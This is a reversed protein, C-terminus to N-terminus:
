FELPAGQTLSAPLASVEQWFRAQVREKFARLEAKLAPLERSRNVHIRSILAASFGERWRRRVHGDDKRHPVSGHHYFFAKRCSCSLRPTSRHHACSGNADCLRRCDAAPPVMQCYAAADCGSRQFLLLGPMARQLESSQSCALRVVDMTGGAELVAAKREMYWEPTHCSMLNTHLMCGRRAADETAFLRATVLARVAKKLVAPTCSMWSSPGALMAKHLRSISTSGALDSDTARVVAPLCAATISTRRLGDADVLEDGYPRFLARMMVFRDALAQPTGMVTALYRLALLGLAHANFGFPAM